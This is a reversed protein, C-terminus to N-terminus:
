LILLGRFLFHTKLFDSKTGHNSTAPTVGVGKNGRDIVTWTDAM